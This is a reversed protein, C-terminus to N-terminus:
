DDEKISDIERKGNEIWWKNVFELAKEQSNFEHTEYVQDISPAHTKDPPLDQDDMWSSDYHAFDFTAIKVFWKWPKGPTMDMIWFLFPIKM